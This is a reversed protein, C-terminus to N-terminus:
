LGLRGGPYFSSLSATILTDYHFHVAVAFAIIVAGFGQQLRGSFRAIRRLKTTVIQGGYAIAMMPVAAGIAYILLLLAGWGFDASMAIVTLISALIPGACPTWVLGLTTGLVFGGLNDNRIRLAPRGTGIVGSFRAALVEPVRPFLMMLGFVVLLIVALTRLTDHDIGAVQAIASFVLVAAAFSTVFGFAIFVPRLGSARGISGGLLIPLVPLTCPAAITLIGALLALLVTV